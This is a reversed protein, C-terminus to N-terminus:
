GGAPAPPRKKESPAAGSETPAFAANIAETIKPILAVADAPRKGATAQRLLDEVTGKRRAALMADEDTMVFAALVIDRTTPQDGTTFGSGLAELLIWGDLSLTYETEPAFAALVVSPQASESRPQTRRKM